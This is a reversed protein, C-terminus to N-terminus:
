LAEALMINLELTVIHSIKLDPIVRSDYNVITLNVVSIKSEHRTLGVSGIKSSM